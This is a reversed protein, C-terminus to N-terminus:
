FFFFSSSSPLSLFFFPPFPSPLSTLLLFLPLCSFSPLPFPSLVPRSPSQSSFFASSLIFVFLDLFCIVCHSAQEPFLSLPTMGPQTNVELFYLGAVGKSDDWRFDSRSCGKCGLAQHAALAMDM